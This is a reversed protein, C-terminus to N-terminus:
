SSEWIANILKLTNAQSESKILSIDTVRSLYKKYMTIINEQEEIKGLLPIMFNQMYDQSVKVM